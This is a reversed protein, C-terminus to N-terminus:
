RSSWNQETFGQRSYWDRREPQLSKWDVQKEYEPMPGFFGAQAGGIDQYYEPPIGYASLGVKGSVELGEAIKAQAKLGAGMSSDSVSSYTSLTDNVKLTFTNKAHGAADVEREVGVPGAQAERRVVGKNDVSTGLTLGGAEVEVGVETKVASKAGTEGLKTEVGTQGFGIGTKKKFAVELDLSYSGARAEGRLDSIKDSLAKAAQEVGRGSETLGANWGFSKRDREEFGPESLSPPVSFAGLKRIDGPTSANMVASCWDQTYRDFKATYEAAHQKNQAHILQRVETPLLRDNRILAPQDPPALAGPNQQARPPDASLYGNKVSASLFQARLKPDEGIKEMVDGLRGSDSLKSMAEWFDRRSMVSLGSVFGDASDNQTRALVENMFGAGRGQLEGAPITPLNNMDLPRYPSEFPDRKQEHRAVTNKQSSEPPRHKPPSRPAPQQPEEVPDFGTRSPNTEVRGPGAM